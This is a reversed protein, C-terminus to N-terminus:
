LVRDDVSRDESNVSREQHRVSLHLVLTSPVETRECFIELERLISPSSSESASTNVTDNSLLRRRSESIEELL